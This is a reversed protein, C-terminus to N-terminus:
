FIREPFNLNEVTTVCGMTHPEGKENRYAGACLIVKNPNSDAQFQETLRYVIDPNFMETDKWPNEM